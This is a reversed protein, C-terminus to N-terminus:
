DYYFRWRALSALSRRGPAVAVSFLRAYRRAFRPAFRVKRLYRRGSAPPRLALAPADIRDMAWVFTPHANATLSLRGWPESPPPASPARAFRPCPRAFRARLGGGFSGVVTASHRGGRPRACRPRTTRGFLRPACRRATLVTTISCHLIHM